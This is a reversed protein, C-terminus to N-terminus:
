YTLYRPHSKCIHCLTQPDNQNRKKKGIQRRASTFKKGKWIEAVTKEFINDFDHQANHPWCCPSVGGDWNIVMTEWLDRCDWTNELKKMKYYPNYKPITPLWRAVQDPNETDIFLGGTMFGDVGIEKATKAVDTIENENHKGILMRWIIFPTKKQLRKREEIILRLNKLVQDLNGRKRYAGYTQQTAGDISVILQALGSEILQGAMKPNLRNLNTSLGVAIKHTTAYSIMEFINPHLLPEGWNYLELRYAQPAIQDILKKFSELNQQGPKRGSIKLGTPCLPCELNCQNIPDIVYEVPMGMVRGTKLRCQIKTVLLNITKKFTTGRIFTIFRFLYIKWASVKMWVVIPENMVWVETQQGNM